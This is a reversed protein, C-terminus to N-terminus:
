SDQNCEGEWWVADLVERVFLADRTNRQQLAERVAVGHGRQVLEQLARRVALLVTHNENMSRTPPVLALGHTLDALAKGGGVFIDAVGCGCRPDQFLGELAYCIAVVCGQKARHLHLAELLLPLAAEALAKAQYHRWRARAWHGLTTAGYTQLPVEDRFFEMTRRIISIAVAPNTDAPLQLNRLMRVAQEAVQMDDWHTSTAQDALAILRYIDGQAPRDFSHTPYEISKFKVEPALINELDLPKNSANHMSRQGVNEKESVAASTLPKALQEVDAPLVDGEVNLMEDVTRWAVGSLPDSLSEDVTEVCAPVRTRPPALPTPPLVINGFFGLGGAALSANDPAGTMLATVVDAAQQM